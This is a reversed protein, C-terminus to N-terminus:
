SVQYKLDSKPFVTEIEAKVLLDATKKTGLLSYGNKSARSQLQETFSSSLKASPKKGSM